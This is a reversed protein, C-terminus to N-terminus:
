NSNDVDLNLNEEVYRWKKPDLANWRALDDLFEDRTLREVTRTGTRNTPIHKWRYRFTIPNRPRDITYNMENDLHMSCNVHFTEQCHINM